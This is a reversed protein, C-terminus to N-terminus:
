NTSEQSQTNKNTMKKKGLSKTKIKIVDKCLVTLKTRIAKLFNDKPLSEIYNVKTIFEISPAWPIWHYIFFLPRINIYQWVNIIIVSEPFNVM